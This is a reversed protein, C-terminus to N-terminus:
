KEGFRFPVAVVEYGNKRLQEIMGNKGTLHMAGVACFVSNTKLQPLLNKIFRDNRDDLLAKMMKEPYRKDNSAISYLSDLHQELYFKNMKEVELDTTNGEKVYDLLLEAQEELTLVDISSAQEQVTELGVIKKGNKTALDQLRIDMIQSHPSDKKPAELISALVFFPKMKQCVQATMPDLSNKIAENVMRLEEPSYLDALTKDKMMAVQLAGMMNAMNSMDVEGAFVDCSNMAKYWEPGFSNAMSDNTHMSGFLFSTNKSDKSTVKWLLSNQAIAGIFGVLSISLLIYKKHIM